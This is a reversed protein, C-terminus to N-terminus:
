HPQRDARWAGGSPPSRDRKENGAPPSRPNGCPWHVPWSSELSELSLGHGRGLFAGGSRWMAAPGPGPLHFLLLHDDDPACSLVIELPEVEIDGEALERHHGARGAGAFGGEGELGEVRFALSAVHFSKGGVHALEEVAHVFGSDIADFADRGGDGDLLLVVHPGGARRYAGDGLDIVVELQEIRATGMGDVGGVAIEDPGVGAVRDRRPTELIKGVPLGQDEERNGDGRLGLQFLEEDKKLLLSVEADVEVAPHDPCVRRLLRSKGEQRGLHLDDLIAEPDALGVPLAEQLCKLAREIQAPAGAADGVRLFPALGTGEGGVPGVGDGSEGGARGGRGEESEVVRHPGTRITAAESADDANVEGLGNGIAVTGDVFAAHFRELALASFLALPVKLQVARPTAEVEVAGEGVQPLLFLVPNEVSLAVIRLVCPLAVFPIPHLSEELPHLAAGVLHMDADKQAAVARVRGTAAAATCAQLGLGEAELDIAAGKGIEPSM